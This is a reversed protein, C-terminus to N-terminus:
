RRMADAYVRNGASEDAGIRQFTKGVGFRHFFFEERAGRASTEAFGFVDGFNDREQEARLRFPNVALSQDSIAAIGEDLGTRKTRRANMPRTQSFRTIQIDRKLLSFGGIAGTSAGSKVGLILTMM